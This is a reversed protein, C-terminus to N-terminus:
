TLLLCNCTLGSVNLAWQGYEVVIPMVPKCTENLPLCQAFQVATLSKGGPKVM